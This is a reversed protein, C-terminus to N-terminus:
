QGEPNRGHSTQIYRKMMKKTPQKKMYMKLLEKFM